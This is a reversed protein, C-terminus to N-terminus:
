LPFFWLDRNEIDRLERTEEENNIIGSFKLYLKCLVFKSLQM